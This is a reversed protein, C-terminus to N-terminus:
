LPSKRALLMKGRETVTVFSQSSHWLAIELYLQLGKMIIDNLLRKKEKAMIAGASGLCQEGGVIDKM